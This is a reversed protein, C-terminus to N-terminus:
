PFQMRSPTPISFAPLWPHSSAIRSEQETQGRAGTNEWRQPWKGQAKAGTNRMLRGGEHKGGKTRQSQDRLDKRREVEERIELGRAEM